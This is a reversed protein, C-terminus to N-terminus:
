VPLELQAGKKTRVFLQWHRVFYIPHMLVDKYSIHRQRMLWYILGLEVAVALESFTIQFNTGPIQGLFLFEWM